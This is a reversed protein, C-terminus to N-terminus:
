FLKDIIEAGSFLILGLIQLWTFCKSWLLRLAEYNSKLTKNETNKIHSEELKKGVAEQNERWIKEVEDIRSGYAMKANSVVEDVRDKINESTERGLLSGWSIALQVTDNM